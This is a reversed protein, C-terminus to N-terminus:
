FFSVEGGGIRGGISLGFSSFLGVVRRLRSWVRIGSFRFCGSDGFFLGLFWVRGEERGFMLGGSFGYIYFFSVSEVGFYLLVRVM